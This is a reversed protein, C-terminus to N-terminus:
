TLAPAGPTRVTAPRGRSGPVLTVLLSVNEGRRRLVAGSAGAVAALVVGDVTAGVARAVRRVV